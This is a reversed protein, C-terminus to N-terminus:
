VTSIRILHIDESIKFLQHDDRLHKTVFTQGDAMFIICQKQVLVGNVM